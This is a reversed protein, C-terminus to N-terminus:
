RHSGPQSLAAKKRKEDDDDDDDDARVPKLARGCLASGFRYKSNVRLM